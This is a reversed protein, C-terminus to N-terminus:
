YFLQDLINTKIRRKKILMAWSFHKAYRIDFIHRVRHLSGNIIKM